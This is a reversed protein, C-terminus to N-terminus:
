NAWFNYTMNYTYTKGNYECCYKGNEKMYVSATIDNGDADKGTIDTKETTVGAPWSLGAYTSRPGPIYCDLGEVNAILVYYDEYSSGNPSSKSINYFDNAALRLVMPDTPYKKQAITGKATVQVTAEDVYRDTDGYSSVMNISFQSNIDAKGPQLLNDHMDEIYAGFYYTGNRPSLLNYYATKVRFAKSKGKAIVVVSKTPSVKTVEVKKLTYDYDENVDTIDSVSVGLMDAMEQKNASHNGKNGNIYLKGDTGYYGYTIHISVDGVYFSEKQQAGYSFADYDVFLRYHGFEDTIIKVKDEFDDVNGSCDVATVKMYVLKGVEPRGGDEGCFGKFFENMDTYYGRSYFGDGSGGGSPAIGFIYEDSFSPDFISIAEVKFLQGNMVASGFEVTNTTSTETKDTTLKALATNTCEVWDGSADKMYLKWMLGGGYAINSSLISANLTMNGYRGNSAMYAYGQAEPSATGGYLDEFDSRWQTSGAMANLTVSKIRRLLIQATKPSASVEETTGPNVTKTIALTFVDVPSDVFAKSSTDWKLYNVAAETGTPVDLNFIDGDQNKLQWEVGNGAAVVPTTVTATFEVGNGTMTRKNGADIKNVYYTPVNNNVVDLYVVKPSLGITVGNAAPTNSTPEDTDAYAKNRMLVQYNGIYERGNKEYGLTFRIINETDVRSTDVTFSTVNNGLLAIDSSWGTTKTQEMYYLENSSANRMIGFVKENGDVKSKLILVNGDTLDYSSVSANAPNEFVQEADYSDVALESISNAVLQAESQLQADVSLRGYTNSSTVMMYVVTVSLVAFIGIAALLEVLTFGFNNKKMEKKRWSLGM